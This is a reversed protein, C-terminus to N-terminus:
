ADCGSSETPAVREADPLAQRRRPLSLPVSLMLAFLALSPLTFVMVQGTGPGTALGLLGLWVLELENVSTLNYALVPIVTVFPVPLVGHGALILTPALLAALAAFAIRYAQRARPRDTRILRMLCLALVVAAFSAGAIALMHSGQDSM